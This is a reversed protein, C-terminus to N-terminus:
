EVNPVPFEFDFNRCYLLKYETPLSLPLAFHHDTTNLAAILPIHLTYPLVSSPIIMEVQLSAAHLLM